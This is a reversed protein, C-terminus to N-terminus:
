PCLPTFPIWPRSPDGPSLTHVPIQNEFSTKQCKLTLKTQPQFDFIRRKSFPKKECAAPLQQLVPRLSSMKNLVSKVIRSAHLYQLVWDLCFSMAQRTIYGSFCLGPSPHTNNRAVVFIGTSAQVVWKNGLLLLGLLTHSFMKRKKRVEALPFNYKEWTEWCSFSFMRHLILLECSM